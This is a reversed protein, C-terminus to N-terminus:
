PYSGAVVTNEAPTRTPRSNQYAAGKLLTTNYRLRVSLNRNDFDPDAIARGKTQFSLIVWM